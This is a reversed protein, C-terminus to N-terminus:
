RQLGDWSWRPVPLGAPVVSGPPSVAMVEAVAWDIYRRLVARLEADAPWGADDVAHLFCAAFAVGSEADIGQGAHVHLMGPHGGHAHSFPHNLVPDALCREHNAAALALFAPTGGVYEFITGRAM